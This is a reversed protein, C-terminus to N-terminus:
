SFKVNLGLKGEPVVVASWQENNKKETKKSLVIWEQIPTNWQKKFLWNVWVHPRDDNVSLNIRVPKWADSLLVTSNRIGMNSSRQTHEYM